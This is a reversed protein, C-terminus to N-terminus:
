GALGILAGEIVAAIILLPLIVFLFFRLGEEFNHKLKKGIDGYFMDGGIKLGIGISFLVAPLEFIGHPLLQWLTAIGGIGAVERSVFGLLYGNIVLTVLPFIGIGIGLIIAFFSAKFNNFFIMWTMEATGKGEFMLMLKEIFGLIESRFINPYIFGIIFTLAFVGLGFVIYWKAENFFKWCKSYQDVLFNKKM